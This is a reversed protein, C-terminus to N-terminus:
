IMNHTLFMEISRKEPHSVTPITHKYLLLSSEGYHTLLTCARYLMCTLLYGIAVILQSVPLKMMLYLPKNTVVKVKFHLWGAIIQSNLKLM